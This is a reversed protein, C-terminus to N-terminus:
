RLFDRLRSRLGEVDRTQCQWIVLVRWGKAEIAQIVEKDRKVNGNLKKNWFELRTSPRAARRCGPHSHWFCGHVFIVKRHRPLAIDPKGPLKSYHLRFRYGMAHLIRRVMLETHTDRGKVRSMIWSRQEPSFRDGTM